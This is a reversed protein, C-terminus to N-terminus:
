QELNEDYFNLFTEFMEEDLMHSFKERDLHEHVYGAREEWYRDINEEALYEYDIHTDVWDYYEKWFAKLYEPKRFVDNHGRNELRLFTFRPNDSYREYFKDLGYEIPVVDDDASHVVMVAADSAEFGDMATNSAYKGCRISEHVKIIPMMLYIFAGARDKGGAEFLDSSSNCGSCEIVAKVEPHYTLVSCVCYGGWSHGFLVIPLGPFDESEEVFTIAHDLDKVGQPIGGLGKGESEDNATADYAFVYYGHRAFYDAVDMYSNHGAGYGHAIVLIGHKEGEAQYLYGQLMQGKDSAFRYGTRSLGEFDEVRLLFAEDSEQRVDFYLDYTTVSILVFGAIALVILTIVIDRIVAKWNKKKKEKGPESYFSIIKEKM